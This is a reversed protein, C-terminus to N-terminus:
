EKKVEQEAEEKVKKPKGKIWPFKIVLFDYLKTGLFAALCAMGTAILAAAIVDTPYHIGVYLRSFGVLAAFVVLWVTIIKHKKESAAFIAVSTSFSYSTHGSPFSYDWAEEVGPLLSLGPIVKIGDVEAYPRVRQFVNKLIGNCVILSFIMALVACLGLKRTKPHICLGLTLFLWILGADSSHTIFLMIVNLVSNRLFDQIWLLIGADFNLISEYFSSSYLSTLADSMMYLM